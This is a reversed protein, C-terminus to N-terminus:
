SGITEVHIYRGCSFTAQQRQSDCLPSEMEIVRNTINELYIYEIM